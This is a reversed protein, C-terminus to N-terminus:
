EDWVGREANRGNMLAHRYAAAMTLYREVGNMDGCELMQNFKTLALQVAEIELQMNERNSEFIDKWMAPSGCALRTMDRYGPGCLEGSVAEASERLVTAALVSSLLHPLHSTRALARDHAEPTMVTIRCGVQEWLARVQELARSETHDTRTLVCVAGNYLNEVAATVGSKEAGAIPHSGVFSMGTGQLLDEMQKQLLAKTSGVDTLVGGRKLNDRVERALDPMSLVPVCAVLLDAQDVAEPLSNGAEDCLGHEMAYRITEQRRAYGALTGAWGSKKLALCLSGGMLGLGLVAIKRVGEMAM